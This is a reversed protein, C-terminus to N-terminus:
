KCLLDAPTWVRVLGLQLHEQKYVFPRFLSVDLLGVPVLFDRHISKTEKEFSLEM